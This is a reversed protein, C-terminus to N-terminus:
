ITSVVTHIALERKVTGSELRGSCYNRIAALAEIKKEQPVLNWVSVSQLYSVVEDLTFEEVAPFIKQEIALFGARKLIRTPDYDKKINPIKAGIFQELLAKYQKKFDGADNKNVIFFVGGPKLMRKIEHLAEDNAFWHFASFATIADFTKDKFPHKEAPAVLYRINESSDQQAVAIMAPDSDTGVVKAGLIAIQRTPIGTGCGIDLIYPTRKGVKSWFFELVEQPVGKRGVRYHTALNGFQGYGNAFRM